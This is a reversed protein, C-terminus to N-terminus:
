KATTAEGGTTAEAGTTTEGGTTAEAGTTAESSAPALVTSIATSFDILVQQYEAAKEQLQKEDGSLKLMEITAEAGKKIKEQEDKFEDPAALAGLEVYLPSIEDTMKKAYEAKGEDTTLDVGNSIESMKNGVATSIRTVEAVYEEKTLQKAAKNGCATLGTLAIVCTMAIAMMKKFNKM